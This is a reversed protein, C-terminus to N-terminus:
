ARIPARVTVRDRRARLDLRRRRQRRRLRDTGACGGAAISNRLTVRGAGFSQAVTAAAVTVSDARVDAGAGLLGAGSLTSNELRLSGRAAEVSAGSTFASRRVEVAGTGDAALGSGGLVAYSASVALADLKLTGATASLIAGGRAATSGDRIALRAITVDGAEPHVEFLRDIGRFASPAGRRAPAATSSPRRRARVKSRCRVPSTSTVRTM